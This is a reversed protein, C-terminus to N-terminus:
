CFMMILAETLIFPMNKPKDDTYVGNTENLTPADDIKNLVEHVKKKSMSHNEDLMTLIEQKLADADIPRM